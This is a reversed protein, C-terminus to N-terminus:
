WLHSIYKHNKHTWSLSWRCKVFSQCVSIYTMNLHGAEIFKLRFKICISANWVTIVLIVSPTGGPYGQPYMRPPVGELLGPAYGPPPPSPYGGPLTDWYTYDLTPSPGVAVFRCACNWKNSKQETKLVFIRGFYAGGLLPLYSAAGGNQPIIPGELLAM